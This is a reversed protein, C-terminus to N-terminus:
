VCAQLEAQSRAWGVRVHGPVRNFKDEVNQPTDAVVTIEFM